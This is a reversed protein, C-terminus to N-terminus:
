AAATPLTTLLRTAEPAVFHGPFKQMLHEAIRRAMDPNKLEGAMMQASFLYM